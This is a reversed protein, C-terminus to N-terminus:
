PGAVRSVICGAINVKADFKKYGLVVAGSSAAMKGSDVILIVPCRLIKAVHATSGIDDVMGLGDYMGMVGEILNLSASQSSRQFLELLVNKPLFFSDLNRCIRGSMRSHFGVDIYDPGVKYPQVCLGRNKLALLLGLTITTKGVGSHTGALIVRPCFLKDKVM